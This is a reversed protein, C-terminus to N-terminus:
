DEDLAHRLAEEYPYGLIQEVTSIVMGSPQAFGVHNRNRVWQRAFARANRTQQSTPRSCHGDDLLADSIAAWDSHGLDHAKLFADSACRDAWDDMCDILFVEAGEPKGSFVVLPHKEENAGFPRLECEGSPEFWAELGVKHALLRVSTQTLEAADGTTTQM